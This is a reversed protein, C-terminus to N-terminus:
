WGNRIAQRKANARPNKKNPVSPQRRVDEAFKIFSEPNLTHQPSQFKKKDRNTKGM